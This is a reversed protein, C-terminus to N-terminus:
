VVRQPHLFHVDGLAKACAGDSPEFQVPAGENQQRHARLVLPLEVGRVVIEDARAVGEYHHGRGFPALREFTGQAGRGRSGATVRCTQSANMTAAIRILREGPAPAMEQMALPM